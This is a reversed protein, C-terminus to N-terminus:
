ERIVGPPPALSERRVLTTPLLIPRPRQTTAIRGEIRDILAQAATEGLAHLPQRVSALPPLSRSVAEIDDFGILSLDRPVRLSRESAAKLAGLAIYDSACVIATPRPDLDLLSLAARRGFEESYTSQGQWRRVFPIRADALARRYGALREVGSLQEVVDTIIAIRRHGLRILEATADRTAAADDASICPFTAKPPVVSVSVRPQHGGV